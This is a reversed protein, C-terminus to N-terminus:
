VARVVTRVAFSKYEDQRYHESIPHAGFGTVIEVGCEPCAYLDALWIKYPQQDTTLEEALVGVKKPKLFRACPVCILQPM